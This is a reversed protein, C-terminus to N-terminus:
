LMWAGLLNSLQTHTFMNVLGNTGGYVIAPFSPLLSIHTRLLPSSYPLMRNAIKACSGTVARLIQSIIVPHFVYWCAHTHPDTCTRMCVHVVVCLLFSFYSKATQLTHSCYSTVWFTMSTQVCFEYQRLNKIDKWQLWISSICLSLLKNKTLLYSLSCFLHFVM